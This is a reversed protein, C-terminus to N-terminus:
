FLVEACTRALPGHARYIYQVSGGGYTIVTKALSTVHNSESNEWVCYSPYMSRRKKYVVLIEYISKRSLLTFYINVRTYNLLEEFNSNYTIWNLKISFKPLSYPRARLSNPKDDDFSHWSDFFTDFDLFLFNDTSVIKFDALFSFAM